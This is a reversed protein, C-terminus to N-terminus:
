GDMASQRGHDRSCPGAVPDADIINEIAGRRNSSYATELTRAPRFASECATAWLAKAPTRARVVKVDKAREEIRGRM